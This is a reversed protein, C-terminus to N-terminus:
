QLALCDGFDKIFRYEVKIWHYGYRRLNNETEEHANALIILVDESNRIQSLEFVPVGDISDEKKRGDSVVFGDACMGQERLYSLCKRGLKKTGYILIRLNINFHIDKIDVCPTKKVFPLVKERMGDRAQAYLKLFGPPYHKSLVAEYDALDKEAPMYAWPMLLGACVDMMYNETDQNLQFAAINPYYAINNLFKDATVSHFLVSTAVDFREVKTFQLAVDHVVVVANEDLYPFAVLFDLLEGPLSHATDLILFDIGDGIQELRAAITKGLLLCHHSTDVGYRKLEDILYGTPKDKERFHIEALDVSFFETCLELQDLCALIVASTGGAAVGVEVMKKPRYRKILGCLFGLESELMETGRLIADGGMGSIIEMPKRYEEVQHFIKM